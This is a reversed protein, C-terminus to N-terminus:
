NGGGSGRDSMTTVPIQLQLREPPLCVKEDCAQLQLTLRLLYPSDESILRNTYLPLGDEQLHRTRAQYDGGQSKLGAALQQRLEPSYNVGPPDAVISGSALVLFLLLPTKM